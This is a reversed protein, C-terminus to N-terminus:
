TSHRLTPFRYFHGVNDSPQFYVCKEIFDSTEILCTKKTTTDVCIIHNYQFRDANISLNCQLPQSKEFYDVLLVPQEDKVSFISCVRGFTPLENLRFIINSDDAKKKDAYQVTSIRVHGIYLVDFYKIIAQPFFRSSLVHHQNTEHMLRITSDTKGMFYGLETSIFKELYINLSSRKLHMIAAQFYHLASIIEEAHRRTGKTARTIKGVVSHL